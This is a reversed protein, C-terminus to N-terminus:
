RCLHRHTHHMPRVPRQFVLRVLPCLRRWVTTHLTRRTNGWPQARRRMDKCSGLIGRLTSLLSFPPQWVMVAASLPRRLPNSRRSVDERPSQDMFTSSTKANEEEEHNHLGDSGAKLNPCILLNDVCEMLLSVDTDAASSLAQAGRCDDDDGAGTIASNYPCFFPLCSWIRDTGHRVRVTRCM